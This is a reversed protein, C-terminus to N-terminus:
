KSLNVCRFISVHWIVMHAFLFVAVNVPMYNLLIHEFILVFLLKSELILGFLFVRCICGSVNLLIKLVLLAYVSIQLRWVLNLELIHIILAVKYDLRLLLLYYCGMLLQICPRWIYCSDVILVQHWIRMVLFQVRLCQSLGDSFETATYVVRVQNQLARILVGILKVGVWPDGFNVFVCLFSMLAVLILTFGIRVGTGLLSHSIFPLVVLIPLLGLFSSLNIQLRVLHSSCDSGFIALKVVHLFNLLSSFPQLTQLLLMLRWPTLILHKWSLDSLLWLSPICIHPISRAQILLGLEHM